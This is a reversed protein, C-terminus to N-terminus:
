DDSEEAIREIEADMAESLESYCQAYALDTLKKKGLKVVAISVEWNNGDEEATITVEVPVSIEVITTVTM